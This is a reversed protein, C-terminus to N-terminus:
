VYTEGSKLEFHPVVRDSLNVMGIMEQQYTWAEALLPLEVRRDGAPSLCSVGSSRVGPGVGGGGGM